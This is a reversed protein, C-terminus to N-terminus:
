SCWWSVLSLALAVGIVLALATDILAVRPRQPCLRGQNCDGSCCTTPRSM